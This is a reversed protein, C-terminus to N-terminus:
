SAALQQWLGQGDGDGYRPISGAVLVRLQCSGAAAVLAGFRAELWVQLKLRNFQLAALNGKIEINQPALVAAAICCEDM